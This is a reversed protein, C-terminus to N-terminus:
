LLRMYKRYARIRGVRDDDNLAWNQAELQRVRMAAFRHKEHETKLHQRMIDRYAMGDDYRSDAATAM